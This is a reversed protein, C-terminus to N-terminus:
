KTVKNKTRSKKRTCGNCIKRTSVYSIMKEQKNKKHSHVHFFSCDKTELCTPCSMTEPVANAIDDEMRKRKTNNITLVTNEQTLSEIMQEMKNTRKQFTKELSEIEKEYGTVKEVLRANDSKLTEITNIYGARTEQRKIPMAKKAPRNCQCRYLCYKCTACRECLHGGQYCGNCFCECVDINELCKECTDYEM